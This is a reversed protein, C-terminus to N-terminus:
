GPADWPATGDDPPEGGPWGSPWPDPQGPDEDDPSRPHPIRGGGIPPSGSPEEWPASHRGRPPGAGGPSGEFWSGPGPPQAGPQGSRRQSWAGPGEPQAGASGPPSTGPPQQSSSGTPGPPRGGPAGPPWSGPSQPQPGISGPPVSPGQPWVGQGQPWAAPAPPPWSGPPGAAPPAAALRRRRPLFVALLLLLLGIGVAGGFGALKLVPHRVAHVVGPAAGSALRASPNVVGPGAAAQMHLRRLKAAERLAGIPNLYGCGVVTNYGGRPHNTASLALAQEVLVTPLTPYVSKILAVTATIWSDAAFAEWIEYGNGSPGSTDITNGPAAVLVSANRPPTHRSRPARLDPFIVSSAGFAGPLSTPFQSGNRSRGWAYESGIVVANKAAAYAVAEDLVLADSYGVEESFIVKAGHDVAYRIALAVQDQWVGDPARFRVGLDLIKAEPALGVSGFPNASSPGSGAIGMALATADGKSEHSINGFAKGIKLRGGLGAVGPNIGSSILAITVGHGKSIQWARVLERVLQRGGSSPVAAATGAMAPSAPWGARVTPRAQAPTALVTMGLLSAVSMAALATWRNLM